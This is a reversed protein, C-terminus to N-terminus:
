KVVSFQTVPALEGLADLYIEWCRVPASTGAFRRIGRGLSFTKVDPSAKGNAVLWRFMENASVGNKTAWDKASKVTLFLTPRTVEEGKAPLYIARGYLENFGPRMEDLLRAAAAQGGQGYRRMDGVIDTVLVGSWLTNLMRGFLEEADGVNSSLQSRNAGVQDLLWRQLLGIDFSLIDLRRCYLLATLVSAQLASWYREKQTVGVRTNLDRQVAHLKAVVADYNQVVYSMFEIGAHGYHKDLAPFLDLAENPTIRSTLDLRVEFLRALEAEADARHSTLKESLRNNASTMLITRWGTPAVKLESNANLRQKTQGSSLSFVMDAAQDIEQNTLEDLMIPLNSAIGVRTWLANITTQKATMRLAEPSGWASLAANQATSKGVGSGQSFAHVTIGGYQGFMAFLPAAFGLLVMYQYAEQGRYNYGEDIIRKWEDYDGQPTYAERLQRAAGKLPVQRIGDPTILNPGVLFNKEPTWGFHDRMQVEDATERLHDVWRNLYNEMKLKAGPLAVIEMNGLIGHLTKGGEGIQQTSVVFRRTGGDKLRMEFETAWADEGGTGKKLRQVAYFLTETIPEWGPVMEGTDPDEKQIAHCIAMPRGALHMAWEYGHPMDLAKEEGTVEDIITVVQPEIGEVRGLQLPTTIQNFHPCLTCYANNTIDGLKSCTTPGVGKLRALVRDTEEKTYRPDGASWEHCIDPAEVTHQLVQLVHYWHPQDIQGGSDRMASVVGCADAMRHASSPITTFELGAKLDDNAGSLSRAPGGEPLEDAEAEVSVGAAALATDLAAEFDEPSTDTGDVIVTVEIPAKPDKRNHTGPLRMISAIDGTRTPDQELGYARCAAKLKDAIRKWATAGLDEDHTFWVHIGHGSNVAMPLPLGVARCFRKLAQAADQQTAYPKKPGVDLDIHHSRAAVVNTAERSVKGKANLKNGYSAVAIWLDQQKNTDISRASDATEINNPKFVHYVGKAGKTAICRQGITPLVRNLFRLTDM